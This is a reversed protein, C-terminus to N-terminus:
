GAGGQSLRARSFVRQPLARSQEHPVLESTIDRPVKYFYVFAVNFGQMLPESFSKLHFSPSVDIAVCFRGKVFM